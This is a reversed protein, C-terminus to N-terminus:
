AIQQPPDVLYVPASSLIHREFIKSEILTAASAELM